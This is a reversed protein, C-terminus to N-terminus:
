HNDMELLMRITDLDEEYENMKNIIIKTNSIMKKLLKKSLEIRKSTKKTNDLKTIVELLYEPRHDRCLTFWKAVTVMDSIMETNNCKKNKIFEKTDTKTKNILYIVRNRTFYKDCYIDCIEDITKGESYLQIIYKTRRARISGKTRNHVDAIEEITLARSQLERKLLVDEVKSWRKGHKTPKSITHAEMLEQLSIKYQLSM